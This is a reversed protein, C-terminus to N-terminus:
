DRTIILEKGDKIAGKQMQGVTYKVTVKRKKFQSFIDRIEPSDDISLVWSGKLDSLLQAMARYDNMTMNYKYQPSKSYPPDLYFFTTPRDYRVIFDRWDLNEITVQSLRFHVDSMTEELRALNIRPAKDTAVGFSRNKVRGGFCLRQVYYYRAAKQIDTLGDAELQKKWDEFLERSALVFRFQKLFEEPHHQVVRYFSILEGDLDNLVETKSKEKGFFVWAAGAFAECYCTHEPILKIIAKSLKSKGGIYPIPSRM